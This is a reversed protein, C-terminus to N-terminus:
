KSRNKKEKNLTQIVNQADPLTIVFVKGGKAFVNLHINDFQYHDNYLLVAKRERSINM